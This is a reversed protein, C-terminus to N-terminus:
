SKLETMAFNGNHAVGTLKNISEINKDKMIIIYEISKAITEDVIRESDIALRCLSRLRSLAKQPSDGHITAGGKTGSALNLIFPWAEGGKIEGIFINDLRMLNSQETVFKLLHPTNPKAPPTVISTVSDNPPILEGFEEITAIREDDTIFRNLLYNMLYTKGSGSAGCIIFNGHVIEDFTKDPITTKAFQTPPPKTTSITLTPFACLPPMMAYIRTRIGNIIKTRSCNYEEELDINFQDKCMELFSEETENRFKAITIGSERKLTVYTTGYSFYVGITECSNTAITQVLFEGPEKDNYEREKGKGFDGEERLLQQAKELESVM